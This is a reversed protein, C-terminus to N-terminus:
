LLRLIHQRRNGVGSGTARTKKSNDRFGSADAVFTWFLAVIGERLLPNEAAYAVLSERVLRLAEQGYGVIQVRGPLHTHNRLIVVGGRRTNPRRALSLVRMREARM